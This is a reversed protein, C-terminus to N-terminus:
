SSGVYLYNIVFSPGGVTHKPTARRRINSILDPRGRLFDPHAFVIHDSQRLKSFGYVNLQRVFSAYNAHQYINPLVRKELEFTSCIIIADGSENFRCIEPYRDSDVADFLRTVFNLDKRAYGASM